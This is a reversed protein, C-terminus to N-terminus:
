RPLLMLNREDIVDALRYGPVAALVAARETKGLAEVIMKPRCRALTERAGALVLPEAREVDIKIAAVNQLALSDLTHTKVRLRNGKKRILSAGATMPVKPNFTIDIWGTKDSVAGPRIEILSHNVEANKLIRELNFPMPEFAIARCGLLDAAISFLGSYAGIDLVLAGPAEKCWQGWLARTQPEFGKGSRVHGVIRDGEALLKVTAEGVALKHITM